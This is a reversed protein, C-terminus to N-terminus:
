VAARSFIGDKCAFLAPITDSASAFVLKPEIKPEAHLFFVEPFGGAFVGPVRLFITNKFLQTLYDPGVPDHDSSLVELLPM